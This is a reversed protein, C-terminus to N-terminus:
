PVEFSEVEDLRKQDLGLLCLVLDTDTQSSARAFPGVLCKPLVLLAQHSPNPLFQLTPRQVRQQAAPQEAAPPEVPPIAPQPDPTSCDLEAHGRSTQHTYNEFVSGFSPISRSAYPVQVSM